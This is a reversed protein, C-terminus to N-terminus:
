CSTYYYKKIRIHDLHNCCKKIRCYVEINRIWHDLKKTNLEGNYTPFEFKIDLKLYPLDSKANEHQKKPNSSTTSSSKSSSSSSPSYLALPDKGKGWASDKAQDKKMKKKELREQYYAFLNEVRDAMQYFAKCFAKEDEGQYEEDVM